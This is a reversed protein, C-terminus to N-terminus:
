QQESSPGRFVGTATRLASSCAPLMAMVKGLARDWGPNTDRKRRPVGLSLLHIRSLPSPRNRLISAEQQQRQRWASSVHSEASVRKMGEACPQSYLLMLLDGRITM